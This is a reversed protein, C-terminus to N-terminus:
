GGGLDVHGVKVYLKFQHHHSGCTRSYTYACFSTNADSYFYFYSYSYSYSYSNTDAHGKPYTDRHPKRIRFLYPAPSSLHLAVV